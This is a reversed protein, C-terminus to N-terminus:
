GLLVQDGNTTISVVEAIMNQAAPLSHMAMEAMMRIAFRKSVEAGNVRVVYYVVDGNDTIM